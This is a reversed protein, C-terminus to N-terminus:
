MISFLIKMINKVNFELDNMKFYGTGRVYVDTQVLSM